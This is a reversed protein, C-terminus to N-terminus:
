HMGRVADRLSVAPSVGLKTRLGHFLRVASDTDLGLLARVRSDSLKPGPARLIALLETEHLTLDM